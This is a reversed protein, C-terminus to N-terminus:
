QIKDLQNEKGSKTLTIFCAIVYFRKSGPIITESNYNGLENPADSYRKGYEQKFGAINTVAGYIIINPKCVFSWSVDLSQGAITKEGNFESSNPNNFVRPSSYRYNVGLLSRLNEFWHKYVVSLNHKSAFTPVASEPYNKYNRKTDLYSYSIWYDGNKITKADRYYIDIGKAYGDGTNNYTTSLYFPQNTMKVLNNYNKYYVETRLTRKNKRTQFSLTYHDARENDLKDSFVLYDNSPNQYFWGYALSFQSYEDVKWAATLRPVLTLRKIYSSYELRAGFRAVLSKSAYLETETFAAFNNNTFKRSLTGESNTWEQEVNSNSWEAGSRITTKKNLEYLHVQKIYFGSLRKDIKSEEFNINDIDKTFSAATILISKENIPAKWSANLFYNKNNLNYDKLRNENLDLQAITLDSNNYSSYIKLMGDKNTKQRISIAGTTAEPAHKWEHDQPVIRMYPDLNMYGITATVAGTKWLKTAAMEPGVSLLSIDLQNQKPMDNTNLLLVSSLAQGYEASYGGTSFITGKFMFPSFRGRTSTNPASSNYPTHVLAGDIYTQSEDSDGGKVFLRGSEGNSTTGPLTQLAGYVDGAAGATTLMDNTSLTNSQKEDGAEFTGASITVAELKNFAEKLVVNLEMPGKGLIIEQEFPEFGMYEVVLMYHGTKQTKMVFRGELDSTVGDYTGKLYINAGPLTSNDKAKITGSIITQATLSIGLTILLLTFLTKM